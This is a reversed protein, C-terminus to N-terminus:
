AAAKIRASKRLEQFRARVKKLQAELKKRDTLEDLNPIDIDNIAGKADREVKKGRKVLDKYVKDANKRRAKLKKQLADLREQAQDYTKGYFGLGALFVERGTTEFRKTAAKPATRQTTTKRRPTTARAATKSATTKRKATAKAADAM